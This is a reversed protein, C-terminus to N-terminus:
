PGLTFNNSFLKLGANNSKIAANIKPHNELASM